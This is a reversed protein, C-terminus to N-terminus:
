NPSHFVFTVSFYQNFLSVLINTLCSSQQGAHEETDATRRGTKIMATKIQKSKALTGSLRPFLNRNTPKATCHGYCLRLSQDTM